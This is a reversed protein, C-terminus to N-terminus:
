RWLNLLAGVITAAASVLAASGFALLVPPGCYGNAV